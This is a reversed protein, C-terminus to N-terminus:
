DHKLLVLKESFTIIWIIKVDLQANVPLYPYISVSLRLHDGKRFWKLM